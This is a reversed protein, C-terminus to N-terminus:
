ISHSVLNNVLPAPAALDGVKSSMCGLVKGSPPPNWSTRLREFTTYEWNVLNPEGFM